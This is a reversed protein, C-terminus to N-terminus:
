NPNYEVSFIVVERIWDLSFSPVIRKAKKELYYHNLNGKEIDLNAQEMVGIGSFSSKTQVDSYIFTLLALTCVVFIGIVLLTIPVDGKRNKKLRM